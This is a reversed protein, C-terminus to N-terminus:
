GSDRAHHCLRALFARDAPLWGVADLQGPALWRIMDHELPVPEGTVLRATCVRLELDPGVPEAGPLWGTVAVTCGLEEAVERVATAEPAEGPEVKGGPLEWAGAHEPPHARRAALLRGRHFVAAGM